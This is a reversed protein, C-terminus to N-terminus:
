QGETKARNKIDEEINKIDRELTELISELRQTEFIIYAIKQNVRGKKCFSKLGCENYGNELFYKAADEIAYIKSSGVENGKVTYELIIHSHKNNKILEQTAELIAKKAKSHLSM